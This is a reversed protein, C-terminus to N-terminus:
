KSVKGYTTGPGIGAMPDPGKCGGGIWDEYSKMRDKIIRVISKDTVEYPLLDRFEDYMWLHPATHEKAMDTGNEKCWKEYEPKTSTGGGHHHCDLGITKVKWGHRIAMLCLGVDYCHFNFQFWSWGKVEDLFSTRVAMFFGDVVAVDRVGTEHTGHIQWDSQNSSYSTRQLQTIHYPTKYIDKTGIGTAGGLGAIALKPDDLFMQQIDEAWADGVCKSEFVEVDDHMFIIVEHTDRHEEYLKQYASVLGINPRNVYTKRCIGGADCSKWFMSPPEHITSTVAIMNMSFDGAADMKGM